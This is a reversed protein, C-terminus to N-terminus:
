QMLLLMADQGCPTSESIARALQAVMGNGGSIPADLLGSDRLEQNVVAAAESAENIDKNFKKQMTKANEIDRATIKEQNAKATLMEVEQQGLRHTRHVKNGFKQPTGPPTPTTQSGTAHVVPTGLTPSWLVPTTPLNPADNGVKAPLPDCPHSRLLEVGVAPETEDVANAGSLQSTRVPGMDPGTALPSDELEGRVRKAAGVRTRRVAPAKRKEAAAPVGSGEPVLVANTRRRPLVKTEHGLLRCYITALLLERDITQKITVTIM